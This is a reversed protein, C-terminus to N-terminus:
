DESTISVQAIADEKSMQRSEYKQLVENKIMLTTSKPMECYQCDQLFVEVMLVDDKDMAPLTTGYEVMYERLKELLQTMAEQMQETRQEGNLVRREEIQQQAEIVQQQAEMIQEQAEKQARKAEKMAEKQTKLAHEQAFQREQMQLAQKSEQLDIKFKEIKGDRVVKVTFKDELDFENMKDKLEDVSAVEDGDIEIIVDSKEIGGAEAASNRFVGMVYVGDEGSLNLQQNLNSNLNSISIGLKAKPESRTAVGRIDESIKDYVMITEEDEGRNKIIIKNGDTRIEPMIMELQPMFNFMFPTNIKVYYIVGFGDMVQYSVNGKTKLLDSKMQEEVASEFVTSLVKYELKNSAEDTKESVSIRKLLSNKDINGSKYQTIDGKAVEASITLNENNEKNKPWITTSQGGRLNFVNPAGAKQQNYYLYIKEGEKVERALNGYDIIFKQMLNKVMENRLDELSDINLKDSNSNGERLGYRGGGKQSFFYSSSIHYTPTQIILGYDQIYSVQAGGSATLFDYENGSVFIETIIKEIMKEQESKLWNEANANGNLLSGIILIFTYFKTKTKM